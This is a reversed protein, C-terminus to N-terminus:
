KIPSTRRVRPTRKRRTNQGSKQFTNIAEM